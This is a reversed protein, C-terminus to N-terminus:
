FSFNLGFTFMRSRPYADYDYGMIINGYGNPDINVEPDSGTYPTWLFLNQATFYVQFNKMHMKRTLSKPFTYSLRLTSLRLYSGDEIFNDQLQYTSAYGARPVSNSAHGTGPVAIPAGNELLVNGLADTQWDPGVWRNRVAGMRNNAGSMDEGEIRNANFLKAGYSYTFIARLEFGSYTFGTSFGGYFLPQSNGLIVRDNEDIKRDNNMDKYKWDGAAPTMGQVSTFKELDPDGYQFIGDTVYGYWTGLPEGARVIIQDKAVNKYSISRFFENTSGLSLVRNENAAVNLDFNWGLKRQQLGAALIKADLTVELGRNRVKGINQLISSFGSSPLTPVNLLLDRTIKYYLDLSLSLRNNLFGMDLGADYQTTKEWTLNENGVNSIAMGRYVSEGFAVSTTSYTQKSRYLGIEQNGTVGVSGRLKFNSFVNWDKVVPEESIRWAVAASPFYGWKANRAFRSSGDARVSATFLYRDNYTYNVRALASMISWQGVSSSPAVLTAGGGINDAGTDEYAFNQANAEYYERRNVEFTLGGMLSLAHRGGFVKNYTLINENLLDYSDISAIRAKGGTTEGQGTCTPYYMTHKVANIKAGLSSRLELGSAIKFSFTNNSTFYRSIKRNTVSKALVLPNSVPNYDEDDENSFLSNVDNLPSYRLTKIFIGSNTSVGSAQTVGNNTSYAFTNNTNFKLWDNVKHNVALRGSIREFDSAQVIGQVGFYGASFIYNTKNNGGTLSLQHNQSYGLRFVERQWDTNTTSAWDVEKTLRDYEAKYTAWREANYLNNGTPSSAYRWQRENELLSYDRSNLLDIHRPRLSVGFYGSYSVKSDGGNAKKTTVLIVGNAGRSGYISTASADKLIEISEIDEPNLDALPNSGAGGGGITNVSYDKSDVLMPFGDIVYLPESSANISTGGRIKISVGAGPAGDASIVQVGAIRGRLLDDVSTANRGEIDASSLSAVSGTLDSRRVHGYGIAVVEDLRTSSEELKFDYITRTPMLELSRSIYGLFSATLKGKCQGTAIKLTFRGAADTTTGSQNQGEVVVNAGPLATGDSSIVSGSLTLQQAGVYSCSLLGSLLLLTRFRTFINM